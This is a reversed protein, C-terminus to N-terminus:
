SSAGSGMEQQRQKDEDELRQDVSKFDDETVPLVYCNQRYLEIIIDDAVERESAFRTLDDVIVVKFPFPRLFIRVLARRREGEEDTVLEQYIALVTFGQEKALAKCRAEQEALEAETPACLYIAAEIDQQIQRSLDLSGNREEIYSMAREQEKALTSSIAHSGQNRQAATYTDIWESRLTSDLQYIFNTFREDEQL